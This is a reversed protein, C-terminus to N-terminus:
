NPSGETTAKEIITLKVKILGEETKGIKSFAEKTLDIIRGKIFPGRDNIRVVISKGNDIREVRVLTGFALTKHAATMGTGDYKEGNATIGPYSYWSAIGIFGSLVLVGLRHFM